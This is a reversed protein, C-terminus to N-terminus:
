VVSRQRFAGVVNFYRRYESSAAAETKPLYKCSIEIGCFVRVQRREENITSVEHTFVYERMAVDQKRRDVYSAVICRDGKSLQALADSSYLDFFAEASKYIKAHERNRCNNFYVTM